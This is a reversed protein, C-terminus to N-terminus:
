KEGVKVKIIFLNLIIITALWTWFDYPIALMPFLTNLAWIFALPIYAVAGIVIVSIVVLLLIDIM